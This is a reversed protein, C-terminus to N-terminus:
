GGGREVEVMATDTGGVAVGGGGAKVVGGNLAYGM